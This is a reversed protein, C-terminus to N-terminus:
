GRRKLGGFAREHQSSFGVRVGSRFRTSRAATACPHRIRPRERSIERLEEGVRSSSVGLKQAEALDVQVQFEPKGPRYSTDVDLLSPHDKLKALVKVGIENLQQLDQGVINLTFPRAGFGGYDVDKVAPNTDKFDKLETRLRAKFDSTTFGRKDFPTLSVFFDAKNKEGNSTGITVVSNVVEPHKRLLKDIELARDRMAELSTGPKMDLGIAFEGNDQVPLFTFPVKGKIVPTCSAAVVFAAGLLAVWPRVLVARLFGTYFKQLYDQLHNFARVPTRVMYFFGETPEIGHAGGFFASMMPANTLADFLSIVMIFCVTLGFQKFFQGVVGSLFGIPL